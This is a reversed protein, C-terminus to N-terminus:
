VTILFHDLFLFLHLISSSIVAGPNSVATNPTMDLHNHLLSSPPPRSKGGDERSVKRIDHKIFYFLSAIQKAFVYHMIPVINEILYERKQEYPEM